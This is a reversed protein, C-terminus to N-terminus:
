EIEAEDDVQRTRGGLFHHKLKTRGVVRCLSTIATSSIPTIHELIGTHFPAIKNIQTTLSLSGRNRKKIFEAVIM